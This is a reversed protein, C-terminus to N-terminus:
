DRASKQIGNTRLKEEDIREILQQVLDIMKGSDTEVQVRRALERWDQEDTAEQPLGEIIKKVDAVSIQEFNTKPTEM